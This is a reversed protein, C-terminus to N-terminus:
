VNANELKESQHIAFSSRKVMDAQHLLRNTMSIVLITQFILLKLYTTHRTPDDTLDM